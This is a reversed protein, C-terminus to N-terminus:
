EKKKSKSFLWKAAYIPLKLIVKKHKRYLKDGTLIDVIVRELDKNQKLLQIAKKPATYIWRAARAALKFDFGIENWSEKEYKSLFKKSYDERELSEIVIPAAISSSKIAYFIGEGSFPDVMYASDGILLTRNSVLKRKKGGLAVMHGRYKISNFKLDFFNLLYKMSRMLNIKKFVFSGVGINLHEKKPFLWGYGGRIGSMIVKIHPPNSFNDKVINKSVKPEAVMAVGFDGIKLMKTLGVAKAVTMAVGDAGIIIKGNYEKGEKTVVTVDNQRIKVGNVTRKEIIEAGWEKARAALFLDFKTRRILTVIPFNREIFIREDSHIVEFGMAEVEKIEEPLDLDLNHLLNITKYTLGGGCPKERGLREKELLLVKIGEKALIYSITAGAPGAGVVIVDHM